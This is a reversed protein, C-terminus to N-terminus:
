DLRVLVNGSQTARSAQEQTKTHDNTFSETTGELSDRCAQCIMEDTDKCDAIEQATMRDGCYECTTM